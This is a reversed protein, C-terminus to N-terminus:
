CVPAWGFLRAANVSTRQALTEVTTGRLGALFAATHALYAPENPRGRVPQPALFPADTEMLLRDDPVLPVLQQLATANSFTVNGAFSIHFGLELAGQIFPAPGSACHIIGEYRRGPQRLMALLEDYANRCHILLPRRSRQAMQIFAQFVRRQNDPAAHQRYFDLGVEGIAVVNPQSALREIEALHEDTVTDAEHPHIGVAAYVNPARGAIAAAARSSGVGTGITVVSGVGAEKARALVAETQGALPAEDLHCHTDVLNM